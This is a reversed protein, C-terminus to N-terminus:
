STWPDPARGQSLGGAGNYMALVHEEDSKASAIALLISEASAACRVALWIPMRVTAVYRKSAANKSCLGSHGSPRKTCRWCEGFREPETPVFDDSKYEKLWAKGFPTLSYGNGASGDPTAQGHSSEVGRRLIGRRCLECAAPYLSTMISALEQDINGQPIRRGQLHSRVLSPLYV